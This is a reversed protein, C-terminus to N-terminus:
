RIGIFTCTCRSLISIQTIRVKLKKAYMAHPGDLKEKKRRRASKKSVRSHHAVPTSRVPATGNDNADTAAVYSASEGEEEEGEHPEAVTSGGRALDESLSRETEKDKLEGSDPEKEKAVESNASNGTPLARSSASWLSRTTIDKAFVLPM